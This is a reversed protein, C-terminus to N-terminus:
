AISKGYIKEEFYVRNVKGAITLYGQSSLEENMRHIIKYAMPVSVDLYEAVDSVNLFRKNEM